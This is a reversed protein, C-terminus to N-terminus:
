PADPAELGLRLRFGLGARGDRLARDARDPDRRVLLGRLPVAAGRRAFFAKAL